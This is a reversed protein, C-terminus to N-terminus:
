VANGLQKKLWSRKTTGSERMAHHTTLADRIARMDALVAREIAARSESRAPLTVRGRYEIEIQTMEAREDEGARCVELCLNYMRETEPHLLLFTKKIRRMAYRPRALQWPSLGRQKEEARRPVEGVLEVEGKRVLTARETRFARFQIRHGDYYYRTSETQYVRHIPFPLCGPDIEPPGRRNSVCDLKIEYEYGPLENIRPPKVLKRMRFYGMWRKSSHPLRPLMRLAAELRRGPELTWRIRVRPHAEEGADVFRGGVVGLHRVETDFTLTAVGDLDFHQRRWRVACYPAVDDSGFARQVVDTAAELSVSEERAAFRARLRKPVDVAYRALGGPGEDGEALQRRAIARADGGLTLLTDDFFVSEHATAPHGEIPTLWQGLAHMLSEASQVFFRERRRSERM